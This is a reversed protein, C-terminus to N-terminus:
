ILAFLDKITEELQQPTLSLMTGGAIRDVLQQWDYTIGNYFSWMMEGLTLGHNQNTQQLSKFRYWTRDLKEGVPNNFFVSCTEIQMTLHLMVKLGVNMAISTIWISRCM